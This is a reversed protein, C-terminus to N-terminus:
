VDTRRANILLTLGSASSVTFVIWPDVNGSKVIAQTLGGSTFTMATAVDYPLTYPEDVSTGYDGRARSIAVTGTGGVYTAELNYWTDSTAKIYYTGDATIPQGPKYLTAM